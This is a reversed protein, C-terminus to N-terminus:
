FKEKMRPHEPSRNSENETGQRASCGPDQVHGDGADDGVRRRQLITLFFGSVRGSHQIMGGMWVLLCPSAHNGCWAANWATNVTPLPLFGKSLFEPEVQATRNSVPRKHCLNGTCPWPSVGGHSQRPSHNDTAASPRPRSRRPACDRSSHRCAATVTEAAVGTAESGRCLCVTALSPRLALPWVPKAPPPLRAVSPVISNRVTALGRDLSLPLSAGDHTNRSLEDPRGV